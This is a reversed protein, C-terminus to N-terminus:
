RTTDPLPWSGVILIEGDIREGTRRSGGKIKAQAM